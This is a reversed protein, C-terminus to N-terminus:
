TRNSTHFFFYDTSTHTRFSMLFRLYEQRTGKLSHVEGLSDLGASQIEVSITNHQHKVTWKDSKLPLKEKM